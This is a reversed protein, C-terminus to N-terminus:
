RYLSKVQGWTRNRAPSPRCCSQQSNNWSLCQNGGPVPWTLAEQQGGYGHAVVSYLAWFMGASCGPCCGPGVTKSDLIKVKGAYYETGASMAFPEEAPIAATAAIHARNTDWTYDFSQLTSSGFWDVCTETAVDSFDAAFSAKGTRCDGTGGLKWWDPLVSLDSQGVIGIDVQVFDPIGTDLVFSATMPWGGVFINTNCAFTVASVPNETYCVTGWSFNVGGALAVPVPPALLFLGACIIFLAQAKPM